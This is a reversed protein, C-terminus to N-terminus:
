KLGLNYTCKRDVKDNLAFVRFYTVHTSFKCGFNKMKVGYFNASYRMSMNDHNSVNFAPM